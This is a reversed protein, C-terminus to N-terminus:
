YKVGAIKLIGKATIENIENHRPVSVSLAGKVWVDHNGGHRVLEFGAQKLKRELDTKKVKPEMVKKFAHGKYVYTDM